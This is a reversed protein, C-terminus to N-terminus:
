EVRLGAPLDATHLIGLERTARTLAVYLDAPNEIRGPEVVIVVDFELGKAEHPTLTAVGPLVGRPAIIAVTGAGAEDIAARAADSLDEPLVKRAWPRIGTRRVSVPPEVDPLVGSAVEMIEAPTRYNITLRRHVWRDAVFPDLMEGWSRAGAASERQALDGVITVSRSPCRRLVVRWDMESLEQAEDV